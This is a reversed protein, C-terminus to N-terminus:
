GGVKGNWPIYSISGEHRVVLCVVGDDMCFDKGSALGVGDM